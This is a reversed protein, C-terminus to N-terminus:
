KFSQNTQNFANIFDQAKPNDRDMMLFDGTQEPNVALKTQYFRNIGNNFYTAILYNAVIPDFVAVDIKDDKLKALCEQENVSLDITLGLNKFRELYYYGYVGGVRLTKLDELSDLQLKSKGPQQCGYVYNQKLDSRDFANSFLYQAERDPSKAYPFTAFAEGTDLMYLGRSWSVVEIDYPVKMEDLVRKLQDYSTGKIVGNEKYVYPAYEGSVFLLKGNKMGNGQYELNDYKNTLIPWVRQNEYQLKQSMGMYVSSMVMLSVALLLGTIAIGRYGKM